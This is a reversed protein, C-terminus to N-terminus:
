NKSDKKKKFKNKNENQWKRMEERLLRRLKLLREMLKKRM